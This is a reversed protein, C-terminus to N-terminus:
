MFVNKRGHFLDEDIMEEIYNIDGPITYCPLYKIMMRRSLNVNIWRRLTGVKWSIDPRDDLANSNLM